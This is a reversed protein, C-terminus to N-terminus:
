RRIGNASEVLSQPTSPPLFEFPQKVGSLDNGIVHINRSKGELRLFLATEETPQSGGIMGDTADRLVVLPLAAPSAQGRFGELRFSGVDELVLAPRAEQSKWSVDVNTLSLGKVHRFYFGYAPLRGFMGSDPYDKAREPIERLADEAVGGGEFILRIDRLSIEELPHEPLGTLSCGISSAGTALLNSITVNRVIGVLPTPGRDVFPRARNGLRVFIPVSVGEITINSIAVQDMLGGDVIELALGGLGRQSGNIPKTHRPSRISCNSITINAFGGNSETGMKLANCHSSLICNSITISEARRALTSKLVLADDDSDIICDSVQVNHCGDIDLGDNNYTVHNFVRIGRIQINDCALYHQMWMPSDRLTIGEVVVNRCHILRIVYPRDRYERWNYEQGQGDLTGRGVIAINELDEGYILSQRVYNDTYSRTEPLMHPFDSPNTSGLVTAGAALALTVNSRLVITGSLYRGPPFLVTGGGARSAAEVASQIASTDNSSGDGVAGFVRVSYIGEKAEASVTQLPSIMLYCFGASILFLCFRLKM